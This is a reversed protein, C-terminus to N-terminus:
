FTSDSEFCSYVTIEEASAEKSVDKHRQFEDIINSIEQILADQHKIDKVYRVMREDLMREHETKMNHRGELAMLQRQLERNQLRLQENEAELLQTYTNESFKKAVPRLPSAPQCPLAPLDKDRIMTGM